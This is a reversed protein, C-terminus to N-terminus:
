NKNLGISRNMGLTNSSDILVQSPESWILQGGIRNLENTLAAILQLGASDVRVISAALLEITSSNDLATIIKKHLAIAHHITLSDGCNIVSKAKEM